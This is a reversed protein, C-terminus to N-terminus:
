FSVTRSCTAFLGDRQGTAQIVCTHTIPIAEFGARRYKVGRGDAAVSVAAAEIGHRLLRHGVQGALEEETQTRSFNRATAEVAHAVYKGLERYQGQEFSSLVRLMPRLRDNAMPTHPFPRDSALKRGATVNVLLDARGGAWQWEKLLFGLRDLE